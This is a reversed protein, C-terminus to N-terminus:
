DQVRRQRGEADETRQYTIAYLGVPLHCHGHEPHEVVNPEALDMIPGDYPGPNALEYMTVGRLHALCHRSGQTEGPALKESPPRRKLDASAPLMEGNILTIYVDGQRVYEGPVAAESFRIPDGCAVREARERLDRVDSEIGSEKTLVTTM